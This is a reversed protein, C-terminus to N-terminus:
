PSYDGRYRLYIGGYFLCAGLSHLVQRKYVDAFIYLVSEKAEPNKELSNILAKTHKLRNYVFIVIPANM